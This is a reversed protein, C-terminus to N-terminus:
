GGIIFNFSINSNGTGYTIYIIEIKLNKKPDSIEITQYDKDDNIYYEYYEKSINKKIDTFFNSFYLNCDSKGKKDEIVMIEFRTIISNTFTINNIGMKDNQRWYMVTNEAFRTSRIPKIINEADPNYNIFEKETLGHKFKFVQCISDIYISASKYKLNDEREKAKREDLSNSTKFDGSLMNIFLSTTESSLVEINKTIVKQNYTFTISYNGEPIEDAQWKDKTKESKNIGEIDPITIKIEIPVSQIVLKGTKIIAKKGTEETNGEESVYVKHKAFPKVIYALVEDPKVTITEEFPTFGEKVIKILNKGPTVNEIILGGLDATTKGIFKSNLYVSLDPEGKVEIYSQGLLITSNLMLLAFFFINKM